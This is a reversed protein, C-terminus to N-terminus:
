SPPYRKTAVIPGDYRIRRRPSAATRTKRSTAPAVLWFPFRAKGTKPLSPSGGGSLNEPTGLEPPPLLRLAEGGLKGSSPREVGSRKSVDVCGDKRGLFGVAGGFPGELGLAGSCGKKGGLM